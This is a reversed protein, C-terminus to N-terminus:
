PKVESIRELKATKDVFVVPQDIGVLRGASVNKTVRVRCVDMEFVRQEGTDTHTIQGRRVYSTVEGELFSANAGKLARSYGTFVRVTDGTALPRPRAPRDQKKLSGKATRARLDAYCSRALNGFFGKIAKDAWDQYEEPSGAWGERMDNLHQEFEKMKTSIAEGSTCKIGVPERLTDIM